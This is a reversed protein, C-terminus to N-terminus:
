PSLSTIESDYLRYHPLPLSRKLHGLIDKSERPAEILLLILTADTHLAVNAMREVVAQPPPPVPLEAIGWVKVTIVVDPAPPLRLGELAATDLPLVAVNVM